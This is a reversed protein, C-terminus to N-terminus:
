LGEARAAHRCAREIEEPSADPHRAVFVAKRGEYALWARASPRPADPMACIGGAQWAYVAAWTQGRLRWESVYLMGEDHMLRIYDRADEVHYVGLAEQLELVTRGQKMLLAVAAIVRSILPRTKSRTM